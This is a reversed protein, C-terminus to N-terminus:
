QADPLGMGEDQVSLYAREDLVAYAAEEAPVLTAAETLEEAEDFVAPAPAASYIMLGKGIDTPISFAQASTPAPTSISNKRTEEILAEMAKGDVPKSLLYGQIYSCGLGTLQIIQERTEVGEAIVDMGLNVALNIITRVIESNKPLDMRMVFSRDIKLTDIPFRHLYSLSSYGTGFDDLSICIGLRKLQRLSEAASEINEIIASETIEIKLSSADLGTDSLVQEITKILDPQLFQKGSLNVSMTLPPHSPYQDQWARLQRCAEGLVWQGIPLILGTEEAIPVFKMPSIFGQQPHEWRVLAEFGAIHWDELSVIPQYFVRFEDRNIARRLDTELELLAVANAHM